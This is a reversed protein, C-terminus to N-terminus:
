GVDCINRWDKDRQEGFIKRGIGEYFWSECLENFTKMSYNPNREMMSVLEGLHKQLLKCLLLVFRYCLCILFCIKLPPLGSPEFRLRFKSPVV